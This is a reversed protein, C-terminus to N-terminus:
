ALLTQAVFVAGSASVAGGGLRLGRWLWHQLTAVEGIVVGVIHLVATGIVFGLTYLAPSVSRPIELGHAHGHCAGFLLVLGVIPWSSMGRGAVLIGIGLVLVSAAIGLEAYPLSVQAMGLAAGATMAAVFALPLRWINAGGLQVSVVGVSIMAILHDPGFVPHLLGNLLGADGGDLHARAAGPLLVIALLLALARPM